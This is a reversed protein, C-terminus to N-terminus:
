VFNYSTGRLGQEQSLAEIDKQVLAKWTLHPRGRQGRNEIDAFLVKIPLRDPTMRCVTGLWRLRHYRLLSSISAVNCSERIKINPKRHSLSYGCIRRLCSM